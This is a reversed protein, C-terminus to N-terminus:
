MMAEKLLWPHQLVLQISPRQDPDPNLMYIVLDRAEPSSDTPFFWQPGLLESKDAETIVPNLAAFLDRRRSRASSSTKIDDYWKKFSQYRPCRLLDEGFPLSRFLMAYLIVGASWVDARTGDYGRRKPEQGGEMKKRRDQQSIIEPAVYHPSGVVSTM